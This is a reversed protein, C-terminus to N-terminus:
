CEVQRIGVLPGDHEFMSVGGIDILELMLM